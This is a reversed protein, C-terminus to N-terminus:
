GEPVGPTRVELFERYNEPTIKIDTLVHGSRGLPKAPEGNLLFTFGGANGTHIVLKADAQARATAGPPFVGEVKLVGDALVNIWTEAQFTIEIEIGKRVEEAAPAQAPSPAAPVPEAATPPATVTSTPPLQIQPQPLAGSESGTPTALGQNPVGSAAPPPTAAAEAPAITAPKEEPQRPRRNSWLVILVAIVALAVLGRWSWSFLRKRAAESLRPRPAEEIVLTPEEQEVAAPAPESPLVPEGPLPPAPAPALAKLGFRRKPEPEGLLGSAKYRALIEDPNLGIAKAYTRIIGKIFFGGPMLDFRDNELAELYRSVIKTTSAIEELSINRAEREEKLSQGLSSM